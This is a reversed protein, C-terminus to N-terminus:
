ALLGEGIYGGAQCGPPLAFVASGIPTTWTNLLDLDSLRQQVPVYQTKINAMYAAFLLGANTRGDAHIGDDYNLPRRLFKEHPNDTKARRMHAFTPIVHLGSADKAALDPADFENEGTLPAGNSLKRGVSLEKAGEDLKDWTDLNMEIRRLVMSTGGDFWSPSGTAWVQAAFEDARRPNVTGDVQGFLNRGTQGAPATGQDRTFGSQSWAVTAFSRATRTLQRVAHSLTLPDDSGLQILLDGGSYEPQLKDISFAPLEAFGAPAEASLGLKQFFGPGFGFTATLRAPNTALYPDNDPLAAEGQTLRAADDTLLRMMRRVTERDTGPKLTWGLFTGSSQPPTDIGAQHVGYFPVVETAGPAVAPGTTGNNVAATVGVAGVALAGTAVGATLLFGRRSVRSSDDTKPPTHPSM